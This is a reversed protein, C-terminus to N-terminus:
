RHGQIGVLACTQIVFNELWIKSSVSSSKIAQDTDMVGELVKRVKKLNWRQSQSLYESLFYSSVGAYASLDRSALGLSRGEIVKKLIRIHRAILSLTGVENQGQELLHRLYNLSEGRRGLGIANTLDFVSEIRKQSVVKLVDASQLLKKPDNFYAKLKIVEHNLESLDAGVLHVMQLVADQSLKVGHNQAMYYVWQPIQNNYPTQLEVMQTNQTLWKTIKKRKDLKTDFIFVGLTQSEGKSLSTKLVEWDKDKLVQCQKLVVLRYPSMMPLTEFCSVIHAIKVESAYLSEYNFDFNIGLKKAWAKLAKLSEFILYPDGGSLTYTKYTIKNQTISEALHRQLTKLDWLLQAM